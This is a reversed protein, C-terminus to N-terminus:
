VQSLVSEWPSQSELSPGKWGVQGAGERAHAIPGLHGPGHESLGLIRSPEWSGWQKPLLQGRAIGHFYSTNVIIYILLMVYLQPLGPLSM